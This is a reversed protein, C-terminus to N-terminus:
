LAAILRRMMKAGQRRAARNIPRATAIDEAIQPATLGEWVKTNKWKLTEGFGALEAQWASWDPEFIDAQAIAQYDDYIDEEIRDGLQWPDGGLLSELSEFMVKQVQSAETKEDGDGNIGGSVPVGIEKRGENTIVYQPDEEGFRIVDVMGSERLKTITAQRTGKPLTGTTNLEVLVNVQADSLKVKTAM